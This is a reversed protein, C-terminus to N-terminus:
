FMVTLAMKRGAKSGQHNLESPLTLIAQCGPLGSKDKGCIQLM